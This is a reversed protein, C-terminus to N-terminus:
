IMETSKIKDILLGQTCRFLFGGGIDIDHTTHHPREAKIVTESAEFEKVMDEYSRGLPYAEIHDYEDIQSNDPKQDSLELFKILGLATEIPQKFRIIAIPRKSIISQYIYESEREFMNRMAEFSERSGCKYCIHDPAARGALKHKEVFADFLAIYKKAGDFFEEASQM